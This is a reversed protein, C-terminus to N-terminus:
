YFEELAKLIENDATGLIQNAVDIAKEYLQKFEMESMKAFSISKPFFTKTVNGTFFNSVDIPEFFGCNMIFVARFTDFNDFQEQNDFVLNLLAFFKRHFEINRPQKIDVEVEAGISLKDYYDSKGIIQLGTLTKKAYLKM